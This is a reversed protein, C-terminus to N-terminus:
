TRTTPSTRPPSSCDSRPDKYLEFGDHRSFFAEFAPAYTGLLSRLIKLDDKSAPKRLEHTVTTEFRTDPPPITGMAKRIVEPYSEVQPSLLPPKCRFRVPKKAFSELNAIPDSM